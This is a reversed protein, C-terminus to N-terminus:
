AVIFYSFATNAALASDMFTTVPPTTGSGLVSGVQAGGRFVDYAKVGVNDTSATWSLTVSTGAVTGTLNAPATPAETDAQCQPPTISVTASAQSLNGAADRANVYLGWTAGPVVTISTSLTGGDVTKILQGDHFIDYFAVGVNDTSASWSFTASNCTVNSTAPAGPVSPPQTDAASGSWQQNTQANCTWVQVPSRDATQRSKVDLCLQSQASTISKNANQRWQQNLQGSCNNIVVAAGASTGSAEVCFRSEFARLEGAATFTFGQNGGGNCAFIQLPTGSTTSNHAVDLCRGSQVGVLPTGSTLAAQTNGVNEAEVDSAASCGALVTWASAVCFGAVLTRGQRDILSTKVRLAETM